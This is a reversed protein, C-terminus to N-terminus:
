ISKKMNPPYKIGCSDKKRQNQRNPRIPIINRGIEKILRDIIKDTYAEDDSLIAKILRNKLKGILINENIKYTYKTVQKKIEKSNQIDYKFGAAINNLYISAYFDQEIAITTYGSFNEIQLKNKL